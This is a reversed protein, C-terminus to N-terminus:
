QAKANKEHHAKTHTEKHQGPALGTAKGSRYTCIKWRTQLPTPECIKLYQKQGDRGGREEQFTYPINSWKINEWM